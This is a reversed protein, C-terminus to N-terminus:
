DPRYSIQVIYRAGQAGRQRPVEAIGTVDFEQQINSLDIIWDNGLVGHIGGLTNKRTERFAIAFRGIIIADIHLISYSQGLPVPTLSTM